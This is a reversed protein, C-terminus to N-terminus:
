LLSLIDWSRAGVAPPMPNRAPLCPPVEASQLAWAAVEEGYRSYVVTPSTSLEYTRTLGCHCCRCQTRSRLSGMPIWEHVAVRSRASSTAEPAAESLRVRQAELSLMMAVTPSEGGASMPEALTGGLKELEPM